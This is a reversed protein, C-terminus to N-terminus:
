SQYILCTKLELLSGSRLSALRVESRVYATPKREERRVVSHRRTNRHSERDASRDRGAIVFLVAGWRDRRTDCDAFRDPRVVLIPDCSMTLWSRSLPSWFNRSGELNWLESCVIWSSTLYNAVFIELLLPINFLKLFVTLIEFVVVVVVVVVVM